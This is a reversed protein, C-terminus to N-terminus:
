TAAPAPWAPGRDLFRLCAMGRLRLALLQGELAEWPVELMVQRCNSGSSLIRDEPGARCPACLADSEHDCRSLAGSRPDSCVEGEEDGLTRRSRGKEGWSTGRCGREPHSLRSGPWLPRAAGRLMEPCEQPPRGCPRRGPCRVVWRFKGSAGIRFEGSGGGSGSGGGRAGRGAGRLGDAAGREREPGGRARRPPFVGGPAERGRPSGDSRPEPLSGGGALRRLRARGDRM